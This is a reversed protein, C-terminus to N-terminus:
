LSRLRKYMNQKKRKLYNVPIHTHRHTYTHKVNKIKNAQKNKDM